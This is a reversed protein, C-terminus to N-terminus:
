VDHIGDASVGTVAWVAGGGSIDITLADRVVHCNTVVISPAVTVGSGISVGGQQRQAEVRVVGGAVAVFASPQLLVDASAVAVVVQCAWAVLAVRMAHRALPHLSRATRGM